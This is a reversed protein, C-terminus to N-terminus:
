IIGLRALDVSAFGLGKCVQYHVGSLWNVIIQSVMLM